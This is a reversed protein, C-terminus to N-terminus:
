LNNGLPQPKRFRSIFWYAVTFSILGVIAGTVVDELFHQSLYIRSYGVLGAIIVGIVQVIRHKRYTYALLAFFAFAASTHGSPFSNNTHLGVGPVRYFSIKTVESLFKFPRMADHFIVQKGLFVLTGVLLMTLASVLLLFILDKKVNFLLLAVIALAVFIGDGLYTMYYFFVDQFKTHTSNVAMHGDVKPLIAILLLGIVIATIAPTYYFRLQKFLDKV